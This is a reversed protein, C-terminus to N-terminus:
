HVKSGNGKSLANLILIAGISFFAVSAPDPGGGNHLSFLHSVTGSNDSFDLSGPQYFDKICFSLLGTIIIGFLANLFIAPIVPFM